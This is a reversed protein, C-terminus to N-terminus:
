EWERAVRAGEGAWGGSRPQAALCRAQGVARGAQRAGPGGRTQGAACGAGRESAQKSSGGV